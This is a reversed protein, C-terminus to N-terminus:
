SGQPLSILAGPLFNLAELVTASQELKHTNSREDQHQKALLAKSFYGEILNELHGYEVPLLLETMTSM